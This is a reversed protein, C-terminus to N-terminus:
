FAYTLDGTPQGYIDGTVNFRNPDGEEFALKLEVDEWTATHDSSDGLDTGEITLKVDLTKVDGIALTTSVLSAYFKQFLVADVFNGSSGPSGNSFSRMIASFSLTGFIRNTHRLGILDGRTQYPSTERQTAKMESVKFDGFDGTVVITTGAGDILTLTGDRFNKPINSSPM